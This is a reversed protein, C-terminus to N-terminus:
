NEISKKRTYVGTEFVWALFAFLWMWEWFRLFTIDPAQSTSVIISVLDEGAILHPLFAFLFVSGIAAAVLGFLGQWRSFGTHFFTALSFFLMIFCGGFFFLIAGFTHISPASKLDFFAVALIGVLAVMGSLLMVVLLWKQKQNGTFLLNLLFMVFFVVLVAIVILGVSFVVNAGNSPTGANTWAGGLNSIWHSFITFPELMAYLISAIGITVVGAIAGAIGFYGGNVREYVPAFKKVGREVLEAVGM